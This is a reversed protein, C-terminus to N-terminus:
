RTLPGCGGAFVRDARGGFTLRDRQTWELPLEFYFSADLAMRRPSTGIFLLGNPRNKPRLTGLFEQTNTDFVNLVAGVGPVGSPGDSKAYLRVYTRRGKVLFVPNSPGQIGQTIEIGTARLAYVPLAAADNAIRQLTRAQRDRFYLFTLDTQLSDFGPGGNDVPGFLLAPNNSGVPLRLLRDNRAFGGGPVPRREFFYYRTGDRTIATITAGADPSTYVPFPPDLNYRNWITNLKGYLVRSLQFCGGPDCQEDYGENWYSSVGTAIQVQNGNTLDNRWLVGANLWYLYRTDVQMSSLQFPAGSAVGLSYIAGTQKDYQQLVDNQGPRRLIVFVSFTYTVLEASTVSAGFNVLPTAADAANALRPKRWLVYSGGPGQNDVWWITDAEAHVNSALVYPNCSGPPRAPNAEVLARPNGGLISTRLVQAANGAQSPCLPTSAHILTPDAFSPTGAAVSTVDSAVLTAQARAEGALGAAVVTLAALIGFLRAASPATAGRIAEVEARYGARVRRRM